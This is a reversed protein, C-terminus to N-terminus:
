KGFTIELEYEDSGGPNDGFSILLGDKEAWMTGLDRGKRETIRATSFDIGEPLFTNTGSNSFINTQSLDWVQDNLQVIHPPNWARHTWRAERSTIKFEDSGDIQATIKLKAPASGTERIAKPPPRFHIKFEYPAAGPPTDDLYVILADHSREMAVIDRGQIVELRAESLSYRPPLFSIAGTTTLFNKAAPNWQLENVKVVGPWGWNIHEWFAGDRTIVIRDSGDIQGSFHFVAEPAGNAFTEPLPPGAVYHVETSVQAQPTSSLTANLRYFATQEPPQPISFEVMGGNIPVNLTAAYQWEDNLTSRSELQAHIVDRPFSAIFDLNTGNLAISTIVPSNGQPIAGHSKDLLLIACLFGLLWHRAFILTGKM